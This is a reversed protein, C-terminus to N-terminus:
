LSSCFYISSKEVFPNQPGIVFGAQGRSGVVARQGQVDRALVGRVGGQDGGQEVVPRRGDVFSPLHVVTRRNLDTLGKKEVPIM